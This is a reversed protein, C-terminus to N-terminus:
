NLKALKASRKAESTKQNTKSANLTLGCPLREQTNRNRREAKREQLQYNSLQHRPFLQALQTEQAPPHPGNEESYGPDHSKLKLSQKQKYLGQPFRMPPVKTSKIHQHFLHTGPSPWSWCFSSHRPHRGLWSDQLVTGPTHSFMASRSGRGM